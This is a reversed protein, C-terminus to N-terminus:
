QFRSIEKQLSELERKFNDLILNGLEMLAKKEERYRKLVRNNKFENNLVIFFTDLQSESDKLNKLINDLLRPKNGKLWTVNVEEGAMYRKLLECEQLDSDLAYGSKATQPLESRILRQLIEPIIYEVALLWDRYLECHQNFEELKKQSELSLETRINIPSASSKSELQNIFNKIESISKEYANIKLKLDEKRKQQRIERKQVYNRIMLTAIGFIFGLFATLFAYFSYQLIWSPMEMESLYATYVQYFVALILFLITILYLLIKPITIYKSEKM